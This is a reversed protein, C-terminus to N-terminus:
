SKQMVDVLKNNLELIQKAMNEMLALCTRPQNRILFIFEDMPASMVTCPRDAIVTATRPTKTLAAMAGFIENPGVKGVLQDKVYVSAEGSILDFVEDAPDGEHIIVEGQKFSKFSTHTENQTDLGHCCAEAFFASIQMLYEKFHVSGAAADRFRKKSIQALTAPGDSRIIPEPFGSLVQIGILDGPEFHYIPRDDTAAELEGSEVFYLYDGDFERYLDDVYDFKVSDCLIKIADYLKVSSQTVNAGLAQLRDTTSNIFRM